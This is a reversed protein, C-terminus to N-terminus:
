GDACDGQCTACSLVSLSPLARGAPKPLGLASTSSSDMASAGPRSTEGAFRVHTCAYLPTLRCRGMM